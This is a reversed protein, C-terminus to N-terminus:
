KSTMLWLSMAIVLVAVLLATQSGDRAPRWRRLVSKKPLLLAEHMKQYGNHTSFQCGIQFGEAVPKSWAIRATVNVPQHGRRGPATFMLRKSDGPDTATILSFGGQSMNVLRVPREKAELEFRANGDVSMLRREDQRRDIVGDEALGDILTLPLKEEFRCGVWWAGSPAPRSWCAYAKQGETSDNIAIELESKPAVASSLELKAGSFSIDVATGAEESEGGARMVKVPLKTTSNLAFREERRVDPGQHTEDPM